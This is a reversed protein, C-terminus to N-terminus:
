KKVGRKVSRLTTKALEITKELMGATIPSGPLHRGIWADEFLNEWNGEINEKAWKLALPKSTLMGTKSTYLIRALTLVIYSQYGRSRVQEPTEILEPLWEIWTSLSRRLDDPSVEEIMSEPPPGFMTIGSTRLYHRHINWSEALKVWRLREGFGREINPVQHLGSRHARVVSRSIYFGEIQIALVSPENAIQQHALFLRQFEDENIEQETIAVFDIDSDEDFAEYCLSGEIYFGVLNDGLIAKVQDLLKELIQNVDPYPTPYHRDM